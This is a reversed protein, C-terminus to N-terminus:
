CGSPPRSRLDVDADVMLRNPAFSFSLHSCGHHLPWGNAYGELAVPVGLSHGDCIAQWGPDYSQGLVLWSAGHAAVRVGTM